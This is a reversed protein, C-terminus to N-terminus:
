AAPPSTEPPSDGASSSPADGPPAPPSAARLAETLKTIDIGQASFVAAVDSHAALAEIVSAAMPGSPARVDGVASAVSNGLSSENKRAWARVAIASPERRRLGDDDQKGSGLIEVVRARTPDLAIGFDLLVQAAVGKAEYVLGLLLHETGVYSHNLKRAESMAFELVKKARSTYPLDSRPEYNESGLRIGDEISRRVDDLEVGFSKIVDIAVSSEQGLVGLLVHETGVYEHRLRVAEERARGLAERVRNTFHYGQM